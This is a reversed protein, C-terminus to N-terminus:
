IVRDIFRDAQRANTALIRARYTRIFACASSGYVLFTLAFLIRASRLVVFVSFSSLPAIYRRLLPVSPIDLRVM